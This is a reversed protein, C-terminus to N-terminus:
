PPSSSPAVSCVSAAGASLAAGLGILAYFVLTMGVSYGIYRVRGIRGAVSFIKVQSFEETGQDAVPAGPRQYPNAAARQM